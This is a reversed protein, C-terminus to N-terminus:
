LQKKRVAKKVATKKLGTVKSGKVHEFAEKLSCGTKKRYAIAKKFNAQAQKQAASM